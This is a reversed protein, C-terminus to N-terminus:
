LRRSTLPPPAAVVDSRKHLTGVVKRSENSGIMESLQMNTHQAHLTPFYAPSALIPVPRKYKEPRTPFLPAHVHKLIPAFFDM